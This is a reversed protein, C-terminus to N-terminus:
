IHYIPIRQLRMIQENNELVTFIEGKMFSPNQSPLVRYIIRLRDSFSSVAV